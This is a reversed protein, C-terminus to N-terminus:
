IQTRPSLRNRSSIVGLDLLWICAVLSTTPWMSLEVFVWSNGKRLILRQEGMDSVRGFFSDSDKATRRATMLRFPECTLTLLTARSRTVLSWSSKTWLAKAHATLRWSRWPFKVMKGAEKSQEALQIEAFRMTAQNLDSLEVVILRSPQSRIWLLELPRPRPKSTLCRSLHNCFNMHKERVQHCDSHHRRRHHHQQHCHVHLHYRHSSYFPAHLHIECCTWAYAPAERM